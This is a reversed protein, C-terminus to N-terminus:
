AAQAGGELMTLHRRVTGPAKKLQAPTLDLDGLVGDLLQAIVEGYREAIRVHREAVGADVAMKSFRALRDLAAQHAHICAHLGGHHSREVFSGEEAIRERLHEVLLEDDTLAAVRRSCFSVQGAAARVCWLLADHPEMDLELAMTLAAEKAAAKKGNPTAGGHFKCRGSGIHDTGQGAALSCKGGSRTKAGCKRGTSKVRKPPSAAAVFPEQAAV